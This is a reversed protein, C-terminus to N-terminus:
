QPDHLPLNIRPQPLIEVLCKANGHFLHVTTESGFIEAFADGVKYFFASSREGTSLQLSLKTTHAKAFIRAPKTSRAPLKRRIARFREIARGLAIVPKVCNLCDSAFPTSETAIM